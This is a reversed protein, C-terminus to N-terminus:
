DVRDREKEGGEREREPGRSPQSTWDSVVEFQVPVSLKVDAIFNM